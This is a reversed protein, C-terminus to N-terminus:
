QALFNEVLWVNSSQTNGMLALRRGDPSPIAYWMTPDFGAVAVKVKGGLDVNLLGSRTGWAGRGMYGGVWVSKSDAAWDMGMMLGIASMPIYRETGDSLNLIRLAREDYPSQSKPTVLYKGDPSLCWNNMPGDGKKMKGVLIETQKTGAPDFAFFRVFESESEIQDHICLTSPLRACGYNHMGKTELVLQSPGGSTPVRMLRLDQSPDGSKGSVSYLVSRGDPTSRPMGVINDGGVLLDPHTDSIGQRFIHPPGDRDSVFLVSNSDPTWATPWDQREDLTLRHPSSLRKNQANIEALYIDGQFSSRLLAMRKGDIAISLAAISARDNTIRRPSGSTRGAPDIKVWWLNSDGQNPEAEDLSYILRGSNLWAIADGLRPESLIVDSHGRALDYVEIQKGPREPGPPNMTRVYAFRKADPAWSVAGFTERGGDIIKKGDSGDAQM